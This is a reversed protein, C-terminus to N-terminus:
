RKSNESVWSVGKYIFRGLLIAFFSIFIVVVSNYINDEKMDNIFKDLISNYRVQFGNKVRLLSKIQNEVEVMRSVKDM